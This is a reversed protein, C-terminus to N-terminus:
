GIILMLEDHPDIFICSGKLQEDVALIIKLFQIFNYARMTNDKAQLFDNSRETLDSFSGKRLDIFCDGVVLGLQGQFAELLLAHLATVFDLLCVVVLDFDHLFQLGWVDHGKIVDELGFLCEVELHFM